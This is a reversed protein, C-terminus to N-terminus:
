PPQVICRRAEPELLHGPRAVHRRRVAGPGTHDDGVVVRVGAVDHEATVDGGTEDVEVEGAAVADDYLGARVDYHDRDFARGPVGLRSAFAHLEDYSTDSVLHSFRTGHAPWLPPDIYVPM